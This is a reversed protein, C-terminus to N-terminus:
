KNIVAVLKKDSSNESEYEQQSNNFADNAESLGFDMLIRNPIQYFRVDDSQYLNFRAYVHYIPALKLLLADNVIASYADSDLLPSKEPGEWILFFGENDDNRAVLYRCRVDSVRILSKGGRRSMDFNSALITDAMLDREMALVAKADVKSLLTYFSFGGGLPTGKGNDWDGDIVRRIRESTLSRAYSDGREPRGQEMLIFRRSSGSENNLLLAAHATTGSGSFPDLIRGNPPCWLQMIKTFLKLPKVTEFNHGHGLIANLENVGTQSHGSQEHDWSQTGIVLPMDYDEDAWYTIPVKGSKVYKLYRKLRPGGQGEYTFILRPWPGERYIKEAIANAAVIVHKPGTSVGKSFTAHKLVLAKVKINHGLRDVFENGDDIWREEYESGWAELWEKMYKKESRWCCGDAPALMEGTFPNQIKYVMKQHTEAGPGGADDSAWDGEPDHDPNKYRSDMEDTRPMLRTKALTEDNAYVLVYETATSVHRNDNRPAYSKQWNIIALRNREGFIEDLMSGLRFLERHDICIAIVGSPKLMSKMIQLRPWMFRMWKTHRAGDDARVLPGLDPDNPDENWRDNYRFDNGTNYPPDTLILDIQGRFRYLSVMAQLNEGEILINSAQEVPNGVSYKTVNKMIRPRVRRATDRAVSKGSFTIRVGEEQRILEVLEDRTLNAYSPQAIMHNSWFLFCRVQGVTTPLIM